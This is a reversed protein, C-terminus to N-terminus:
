QKVGGQLARLLHAQCFEDTAKKVAVTAKKKNGKWHMVKVSEGEADSYRATLSAAVEIAGKTKKGGLITIPSGIGPVELVVDSKKKLL